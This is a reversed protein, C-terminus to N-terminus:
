KIGYSKKALGSYLLILFFLRITLSYRDEYHLFSFIGCYAIIVALGILSLANARTQLEDSVGPQKRILLAFGLAGAVLYLLGELWISWNDLWNGWAVGTWIWNFNKLKYAMWRFPHKVLTMISFQMLWPDILPHNQKVIECLGPDAYCAPDAGRLWGRYMEPYEEEKSWHFTQWELDAGGCSFAYQHCHIFNVTKWPLTLGNLILFSFIFIKFGARDNSPPNTKFSSKLYQFFNLGREATTREIWRYFMFLTFIGLLIYSTFSFSFDLVARFNAAIGLLIMAHYIKKTNGELISKALLVLGALVIAHSTSESLLYGYGLSWGRFNPLLWISALMFFRIIKNKPITLLHFIYTLSATWLVIDLFFVKAFYHAEGTLSTILAILLPFGPAWYHLYYNGFDGSRFARMIVVYSYNDNASKLVDPSTNWFDVNLGHLFDLSLFGALLTVVLFGLAPLLLKSNKVKQFASLM